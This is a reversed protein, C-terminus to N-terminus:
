NSSISAYKKFSTSSFKELLKTVVRVEAGVVNAQNKKNILQPDGETVAIVSPKIKKVLELYDENKKLFDIPIVFDVYQISALIDAREKQSHFPKKKKREIISEDSELLVVLLDGQEKAKELFTLHGFHFGDFCGGVLVLKKNISKRLVLFRDFPIIKRM